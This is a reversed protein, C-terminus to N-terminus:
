PPLDPQEEDYVIAFFRGARVAKASFNGRLSSGYNIDKGRKSNEPMELWGTM